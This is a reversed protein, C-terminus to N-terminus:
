LGKDYGPGLESAVEHTADVLARDFHTKHHDPPAAPLAVVVANGVRAGNAGPLPSQPAHAGREATTTPRSAAAAAASGNATARTTPAGHASAHQPAATAVHTGAADVSLHLLSGRLSETEIEARERTVPSARPPSGGMVVAEHLRKTHRANTFATSAAAASAKAAERAEHPHARARAPGWAVVVGAGGADNVFALLDAHATALHKLRGGLVDKDRPQVAYYTSMLPAAVAGVVCGGGSRAADVAHNAAMWAHLREVAAREEGSVSPNVLGSGGVGRPANDGAGGYQAHANGRGGGVARVGFIPAPAHRAQQQQQRQHHESAPRSAIAHVAALSTARPPTTPLARRDKRTTKTHAHTHSLSLSFDHM